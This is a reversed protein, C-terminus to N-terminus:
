VLGLYGDAVHRYPLYLGLAGYSWVAAMAERKGFVSQCPLRFGKLDGTLCSRYSPFLLWMVGRSLSQIQARIQKDTGCSWNVSQGFRVWFIIGGLGMVCDVILYVWTGEGREERWFDPDWRFIPFNSTVELWRVVDLGDVSKSCGEM